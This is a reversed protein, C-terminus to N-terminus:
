IKSTLSSKFLYNSLVARPKRVQLTAPAPKSVPIGLANMVAAFNSSFGSQDVSAVNGGAGGESASGNASNSDVGSVTTSNVSALTGNQGSSSEISLTNGFILSLGWVFAIVGTIGLSTGVAIRRRVHEPKARLREIFDRM